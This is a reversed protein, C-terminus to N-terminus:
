ESAGRLRRFIQAYLKAVYLPPFSKKPLIRLILKLSRTKIEGFCYAGIKLKFTVHHPRGDNVSKASSISRFMTPGLHM